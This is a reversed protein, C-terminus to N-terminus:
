PERGDTEPGPELGEPVVSKVPAEEVTMFDTFLDLSGLFEAGVSPHEPVGPVCVFGVSQGFLGM